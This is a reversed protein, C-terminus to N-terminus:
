GGAPDSYTKKLLRESLTRKQFSLYPSSTWSTGKTQVHTLPKVLTNLPLALADVPIDGRVHSLKLLESTGTRCLRCSTLM